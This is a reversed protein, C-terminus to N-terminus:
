IEVHRRTVLLVPRLMAALVAGAAPRDVEHRFAPVVIHVRRTMSHMLAFAFLVEAMFHVLCMLALNVALLPVFLPTIVVVIMAMIMIVVMIVIVVVTVSITHISLRAGGNAPCAEHCRAAPL